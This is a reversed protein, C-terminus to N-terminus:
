KSGRLYRVLQSSKSIPWVRTAFQSLKLEALKLVADPVLVHVYKHTKSLTKLKRRFAKQWAPYAYGSVEILTRRVRFDPFFIKNNISRVTPEHEFKVNSAKLLRAFDNELNSRYKGSRAKFKGNMLRRAYQEKLVQIQENTKGEFMCAIKRRRMAAAIKKGVEPRSAVNASGRQFGAKTSKGRYIQKYTKGKTGHGQKYCIGQARWFPVAIWAKCGCSCKIRCHKSCDSCYSQKIDKGKFARKCYRCVCPCLARKVFSSGLKPM